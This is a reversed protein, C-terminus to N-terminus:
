RRPIRFIFITGSEEDSTFVVGGNLYREGLLKASYTGIGRGAGKTSFSRQFIQTRVNEPMVFSNQVSFVAFDAQEELLVRVAEGDRSAELANKLLNLVIRRYLLRDTRVVLGDEPLRADIRKNICFSSGEVSEIIKDIEESLNVISTEVCLEGEEAFKLKQYYQIQEVIDSINDEITRGADSIAESSVTSISILSSLTHSTNLVDHFFARELLEARKERSIDKIFLVVFVEEAVLPIGTVRVDVARLNGNNDLLLHGDRTVRREATLVEVITNMVDCFGCSASNGCGYVTEGSHVCGFAEGPRRGVLDGVCPNDDFYKENVIVYQLNRNLIGVFEEAFDSIVEALKKETLLARQKQMNEANTRSKRDYSMIM